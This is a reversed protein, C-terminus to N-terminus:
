KKGRAADRKETEELKNAKEELNTMHKQLKELEKPPMDPTLSIYAKYQTVAERLAPPHPPKQQELALALGQRTDGDKPNGFVSDHFKDVASNLQKKKALDEALTRDEKAAKRATAVKDMGIKAREQGGPMSAAKKYAAEADDLDKIMLSLDAVAFAQKPDAANAIVTGMQENAGKFDNQALLAEAYAVREGDTHPVGITKLDVKEGSMARMKAEALRLEMDNPNLAIAKQISVKATEYDNSMLFAGGADKTSKLYYARTVGKAAQAAYQPSSMLGEYEKIADDLKELRLSEDGIRMHLDPNSPM